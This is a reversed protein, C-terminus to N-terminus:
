QVGMSSRVVTRTFEIFLAAVPNLTRNKLTVMVTPRPRDPLAVPLAKIPQHKASLLVTSAPLIALFRGAILLHINMAMSSSTITPRPPTVGMADFAEAVLPAAVTEPSPFVWPEDLLDSFKIKRQRAWKSKSGAVVLLRDDFLIESAIEEDVVPAPTRGIFLEIDRNRLSHQLVAFDGELVDIVVRPHQRVLAEAVAPIIGAVLPPTGGIRTEGATPDALFEIDRVSQKLEDFVAISRKMLARGYLTPEVGRPDRDLLAVGLTHEMDAIAKSVVPQSIALQKAAKSMSRNQVVVLFINLDRLHLRSGIRDTLKM